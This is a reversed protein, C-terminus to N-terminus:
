QLSFLVFSLASAPANSHGAEQQPTDWATVLMESSFNFCSSFSFHCLSFVQRGLFMVAGLKERLANLALTMGKGPQGGPQGKGTVGSGELHESGAPEAARRAGAPELLFFSFPLNGFSAEGPRLPVSLLLGCLWSSLM